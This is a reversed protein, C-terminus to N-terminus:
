IIVWNRYLEFAAEWAEYEALDPELEQRAVDPGDPTERLYAVWAGAGERSLGVYWDRLNPGSAKVLGPSVEETKGQRGKFWAPVTVPM